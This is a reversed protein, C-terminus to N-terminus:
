VPLKRTTELYLIVMDVIEGDSSLPLLLTESEQLYGSRSPYHEWDYVLTKEEVVLRYNELVEALSSGHYGEEITLGTPNQDRLQVPREGVLRYILRFPDYLVSVLIIGPLWNKMEVPDLDARAPMMRGRRKSEWYRYFAATNPSCRQLFDLSTIRPYTM